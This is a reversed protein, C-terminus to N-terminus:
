VRRAKGVPGALRRARPGRALGAERTRRALGEGTEGMAVLAVGRRAIVQALPEIDIGKNRGGAILVIPESFAALAKYTSDPNTAKSDNYWRVGNFTGIPELRHEVAKFQRVAEAIREPEVGAADGAGGAAM